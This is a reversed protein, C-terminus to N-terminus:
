PGHNYVLLSAQQKHPLCCWWSGSCGCKQRWHRKCCWRGQSDLLFHTTPIAIRWLLVDDDTSTILYPTVDLRGFICPLLTCVTQAFAGSRKVSTKAWKGEPSYWTGYTHLPCKSHVAFLRVWLLTGTGARVRSRYSLGICCEGGLPVRYPQRYSLCFTRESFLHLSSGDPSNLLRPVIPGMGNVSKRIYIYIQAIEGTGAIPKCSPM